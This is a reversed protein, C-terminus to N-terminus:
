DLDIPTRRRQDIRRIGEAEVKARWGKQEKARDRSAGDRAKVSWSEKGAGGERGGGRGETWEEGRKVKMRREEM